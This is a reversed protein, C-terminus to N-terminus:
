KVYTPTVFVGKEIGRHHNAESEGWFRANANEFWVATAHGLGFSIMGISGSRTKYKKVSEINRWKRVISVSARFMAGAGDCLVGYLKIVASGNQRCKSSLLRSAATSFDDVFCFNGDVLKVIVNFSTRTASSRVDGIERDGPVRACTTPRTCEYSTWTGYCSVPVFRLFYIIRKSRGNNERSRWACVSNDRAVTLSCIIWVFGGARKCLLEDSEIEDFAVLPVLDSCEDNKAWFLFFKFKKGAFYRGALDIPKEDDSLTWIHQRERPSLCRWVVIRPIIEIVCLVGGADLCHFNLRGLFGYLFM